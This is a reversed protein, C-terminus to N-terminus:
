EEQPKRGVLKMFRPDDRIPELDPDKWAWSKEIKKNNVALELAQFAADINGSMSELCALDYWDEPEIYKRSTKVYKSVMEPKNQQRYIGALSVATYLRPKIQHSREFHTIAEELQGTDRLLNAIDSYIRYDIVGCDIATRFAKEAKKYM